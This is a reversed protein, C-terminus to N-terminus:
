LIVEATALDSSSSIFTVLECTTCSAARNVEMRSEHTTKRAAELEKPIHNGTDFYIEDPTQGRFASHAM